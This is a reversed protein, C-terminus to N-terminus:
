WIDPHITCVGMRIAYCNYCILCNWSKVNRKAVIIYCNKVLGTCKVLIPLIMQSVYVMNSVNSCTGLNSFVSVLIRSETVRGICPIYQPILGTERKEFIHGSILTRM